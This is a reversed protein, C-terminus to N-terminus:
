GTRLRLLSVAILRRFLFGMLSVVEVAMIVSIFSVMVMFSMVGLMVVAVVRDVSVILGLSMIVFVFQNYFDTRFRLCQGAEFHRGHDSPSNAATYLQRTLNSEILVAQSVYRRTEGADSQLYFIPYAIVDFGAIGHGNDFAILTHSRVGDLSRYRAPYNMAM